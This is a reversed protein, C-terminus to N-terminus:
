AHILIEIGLAELDWGAASGSMDILSYKNIQPIYCIAYDGFEKIAKWNSITEIFTKM